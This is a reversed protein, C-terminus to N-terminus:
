SEGIGALINGRERVSAEIEDLIGLIESAIIGSNEESTALGDLLQSLEQVREVTALDQEYVQDLVDERVKVFDFIGSYGRVAGALQNGVADMRSVVRELPPLSDIQGADLQSRMYADVKGKALGLQQEMWTRALHDSERRYEKELYGQFGPIHRLIREVINRDESHQSPDM